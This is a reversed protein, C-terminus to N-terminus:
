QPMTFGSTGRPHRSLDKVGKKSFTQIGVSAPMAITINALVFKSAQHMLRGAITASNNMVVNACTRVSPAPIWILRKKRQTRMEFASITQM